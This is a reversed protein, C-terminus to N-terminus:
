SSPSAADGAPVSSVGAIDIDIWRVLAALSAQGDQHWFPTPSQSKGLPCVRSVGLQAVSRARDATCPWIALTSLHPRVLRLHGPMTELPPLPKVFVLRNLCSVAFQPDDEYIVTWDTSPESQWVAVRDDNAARFAYSGRLHSIEQAEAISIASRPTHKNFASMAVALREAFARADGSCRERVYIDHVSLCGQQDFLSVDSAALEAATEGADDFVIAFSLRHGHAIFKQWPRLRSRFHAVTEDSGFVIVADAEMLWRDPLVAATEVSARLSEPLAALFRAVADAVGPAESPLKVLNHSGALLGTVLSQLAANATNGAVVHLVRGPPVARSCISGRPCFGDLAAADGLEMRVWELLEGTSVAAGMANPFQRLARALARARWPTGTAGQEPLADPKM